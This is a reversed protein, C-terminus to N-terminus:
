PTPKCGLGCASPLRAKRGRVPSNALSNARRVEQRAISARIQDLVTEVPVIEGRAAEAESAQLEAEIEAVPRLLTKTPDTM